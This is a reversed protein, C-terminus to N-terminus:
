IGIANNYNDWMAKWHEVYEKYCSPCAAFDRNPNEGTGDWPYMTQAYRWSVNETTMCEECREPKCASCEVELINGYGGYIEEIRSNRCVKCDSNELLSPIPDTSM